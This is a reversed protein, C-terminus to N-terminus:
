CENIKWYIHIRLTITEVSHAGRRGPLAGRCFLRSSSFLIPVFYLSAFFFCFLVFYIYSSFVFGSTQKLYMYFTLSFAAEFSLVFAHMKLEKGVPTSLLYGGIM